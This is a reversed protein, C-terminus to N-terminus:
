LGSEGFFGDVVCAGTSSPMCGATAWVLLGRLIWGRCMRRHLEAHVRCYGGGVPGPGAGARVQREAEYRRQQLTTAQQAVMTELEMGRAEAIRLKKTAVAVDAELMEITSVSARSQAVLRESLQKELSQVRQKAQTHLM